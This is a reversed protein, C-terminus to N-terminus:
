DLTPTPSHFFSLEDSRIWQTSTTKEKAATLKPFSQSVNEVPWFCTQNPYVDSYSGCTVAGTIMIKQGAELSRVPDTDMIVWCDDPAFSCNRIPLAEYVSTTAPVILVEGLKRSKRQQREHKERFQSAAIRQDMQRQNNIEIAGAILAVTLVLPLSIKWYRIAHRLLYYAGYLPVIIVASLCGGELERREIAEGIKRGGSYVDYRKRNVADRWVM